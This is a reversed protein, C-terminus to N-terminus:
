FVLNTLNVRANNFVDDNIIESMKSSLREESFSEYQDLLVEISEESPSNINVLDLIYSDGNRASLSISNGKKQKFVEELIEQPMLSSYRNVKIFSDKSIFNYASIFSDLSDNSKAMEIESILLNQKEIAKSKSLM